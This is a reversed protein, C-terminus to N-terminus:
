KKMMQMKQLCNSCVLKKSAPLETLQKREFTRGCIECVAPVAIITPAAKPVKIEFKEQNVFAYLVYLGVIGLVLVIFETSRIWAFFEGCRLLSIPGFYLIFIALVIGIIRNANKKPNQLTPPVAAKSEVKKEEM